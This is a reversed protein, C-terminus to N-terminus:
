HPVTPFGKKEVLMRYDVYVTTLLFCSIDLYVLSTHVQWVQMSIKNYHHVFQGVHIHLVLFSIWYIILILADDKTLIIKFMCKECDMSAPVHMGLSM